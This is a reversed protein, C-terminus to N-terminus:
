RLSWSYKYFQWTFIVFSIFALTATMLSQVPLKYALVISIEMVSAIGLLLAFGYSFGFVSKEREIKMVQPIRNLVIFAVGIWGAFNGVGVPNIRASLAVLLFTVANVIYGGFIMKKYVFQDYYFRQCLIVFTLAAQIGASAQYSVPLDLAFFYLGLFLFANLFTWVLADSLGRATKLRYNELVLPVLSYCYVVQNIAILVELTNM